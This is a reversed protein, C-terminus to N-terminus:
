EEFMVGDDVYGVVKGIEKILSQGNTLEMFVQTTEGINQTYMQYVVDANYIVEKLLYANQQIKYDMKGAMHYPVSIEILEFHGKVIVKSAKVGEQLAKTYARALGGTGLKTGGFYRSVVGIVNTLAEGRLVELMPMGATGAPEGDDGYRDIEPVSNLRYAFCHHSADRYKKKLQGIFEKAEEESDIPRLSAIFRSKKEVIEEEVEIKITKYGIM